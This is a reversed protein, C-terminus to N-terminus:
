EIASASGDANIRVKVIPAVLENFIQAAESDAGGVRTVWGPVVNEIASNRQAAKMDDSFEVLEMGEAVNERVATPAFHEFLLQRNLYAHRAGEEMIINQLDAPMEDWRAQNVTFWSHGVSIIPGVLYDAVEYWRLGHGCSGCSIAGDIVGRELATYVDAFAIFQPDGGMGSILDSLVTSHSRLKKDQLDDLSRIEPQSFIYNHATMMYAVQVGGQEATVEAMKPQIADIVSLQDEQTPYLGWLNSMDMIPFDGGVYGSYIQASDLTGDEVLRLTDPGGVGLEPFSSVEFVVQGNTRRKIREVFGIDETEAYNGIALGCDVLTRNICALQMEFKQGSSTLPTLDFNIGDEVGCSWGSPSGGGHAAPVSAATEGDCYTSSIAEQGGDPADVINICVEGVVRGACGEVWDMAASPTMMAGGTTMMAETESASGDPNIVVGVIPGVKDNFINVGESEPGGARKVWNPIITELAAVRMQTKVDDPFDSYEMGEAVNLNIGDPDWVEKILRRNEAEYERGVEKLITRNADSLQRWKEGNVTIYTVALSGVIPGYLYDTVEYWRQGYGPTGGTIGADLVGRELATYVDAFAVFQGTAGLGSLLDGLVASHQRIDKGAYAALDPLPERSFIYQNPYYARFVPEGGTADRLIRIMDDEIAESLVLHAENSPSVGWLNGVDIVPLDGGVYGSYIEAFELTENNVLRITDPGGLGLEPYSSIEIRVEDTRAHVRPIYFDRILECPRLTRNICVVQLTVVEDQVAPAPVPTQTPPVPTATPADATAAADTTSSAAAATPQAAAPATTAAATETAAVTAAPAPADDQGQCAAFALLLAMVVAALGILRWSRCAARLRRLRSSTPM